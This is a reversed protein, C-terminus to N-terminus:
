QVLWLINGFDPSPSFSASINIEVSFFEFLMWKCKITLIFFYESTFSYPTIRSFPQFFRMLNVLTLAVHGASSFSLLSRLTQLLDFAKMRRFERDESVVKWFVATCFSREASVFQGAHVRAQKNQNEWKFQSSLHRQVQVTAPTALMSKQFSSSEFEFSVYGWPESLKLGERRERM